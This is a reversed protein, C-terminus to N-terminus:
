LQAFVMNGKASPGDSAHLRAEDLHKPKSELGAARHSGM